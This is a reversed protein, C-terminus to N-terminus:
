KNWTSLNLGTIKELERNYPEFFDILFKRVEGSMPEDAKRGQNSQLLFNSIRRFVKQPLIRKSIKKIPNKNYSLWILLRAITTSKPKQTPNYVTSTNSNFEPNIKIQSFLDTCIKDPYQKLDEFPLIIVQEKPFYRYIKKVQEAYMGLEIFLRFMQDKEGLQFKKVSDIIDGWSKHYWGSHKEMKYSSYARDTPHRILLVIICDPNHDHLRKLATENYYIGVNKAVIKKSHSIKNKPFYYNFAHGIGKEFEEDRVFYAFENQEHTVVDPHQGLYNKLSTTGAKQAGVIMLDIKGNM